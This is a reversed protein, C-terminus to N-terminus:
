SATVVVLALIVLIEINYVLHLAASAACAGGNTEALEDFPGRGVPAQVAAKRWAHRYALAFALGGWSLALAVAIPIGVVLHVLGFVLTARLWRGLGGRELGRRFIREESLTFVPMAYALALLFIVAGGVAIWHVVGGAPEGTAVLVPAVVANSSMGVLRGWGWGLGPLALLLASSLGVVALVLPAVLWMWWRVSALVPRVLDRRRHVLAMARGVQVLVLIVVLARIADVASLTGALCCPDVVSM